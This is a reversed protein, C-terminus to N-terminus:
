YLDIHFSCLSVCIGTNKLLYWQLRGLCGELMLLVNLQSLTIDIVKAMSLKVSFYNGFRESRLQIGAFDHFTLEFTRLLVFLYSRM